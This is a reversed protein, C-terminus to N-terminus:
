RYQNPYQMDTKVDLSVRKALKEVDYPTPIGFFQFAMKDSSDPYLNLYGVNFLKGTLGIKIDIKGVKDHALNKYDTGLQWSKQIFRKNTICFYTHTIAYFFYGMVCLAAIKSFIAIIAGILPYSLCGILLSPKGAWFITEDEELIGDFHSMLSVDFDVMFLLEEQESTLPQTKSSQQNHHTPVGRNFEPRKANPFNWDTRTDRSVTRILDHIDYAHEIGQINFSNDPENEDYMLDSNIHISGLGYSKEMLGERVSMQNIQDLDLTRYDEGVLGTRILLRKNSLAYFTTKWSIILGFTSKFLMYCFASGVLGGMGILFWTVAIPPNEIMFYFGAILSLFPVGWLLSFGLMFLSPLLYSIFHSPATWILVEDDDIIHTFKEAIVKNLHPSTSNM